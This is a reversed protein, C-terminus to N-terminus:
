KAQLEPFLARNELIAKQRAGADKIKFIEEKTMTTGGTGTPPKETDAGVRGSTTVFDGWEKKISELHKERDAIAGDKLKVGSLDTVRLVAPIRKEAIGAEALLAKYATEKEAKAKGNAVEQKLSDHAKKEAEYKAKYGGDSNSEAKLKELEAKTSEYKEASEKYSDRESKLASVTEAHATIIEDIKDADIGMAALWKRTLAM